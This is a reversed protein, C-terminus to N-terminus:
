FKGSLVNCILVTEKKTEAKKGFGNWNKINLFDFVFKEFFERNLIKAENKKFLLFSDIDEKKFFKKVLRLIDDRDKKVEVKANLVENIIRKFREDRL